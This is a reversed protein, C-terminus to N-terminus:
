SARASPPLRIRRVAPGTGRPRGAATVSEVFQFEIAVGVEVQQRALQRFRRAVDRRDARADAIGEAIEVAVERAEAAHRPVDLVLDHFEPHHRQARQRRAEVAGDAHRRVRAPLGHLEHEFSSCTAM